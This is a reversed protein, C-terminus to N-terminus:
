LRDLVEQAARKGSRVAGDMYGNWYTSTETGAWHIRGVPERIAPGFGLLTGPGYIGVPCGRSWKQSAWNSEFYERPHLAQPGFFNSFQGLVAKRRESRSKTMFHRANDGGIFGFVTGREGSRPSDDICFNVAGPISAATGTLGQDRWFPREYVATVKMLTGQPVRQTLQDRAPPLVPDYNIRGALTPPIAVIVRRARVLFRRSHVTVGHDEQVIRRVPSGLVVRDGLKKAMKIAILQSGGHFHWMQAGDRTNFNREFTGPNQENGSAAIYFLTFLLSLDRPEAGFIPRTAVPALKRIQPNIDNARIWGELTQHDWDDAHPSAWPADVPVQTSMQDLRLVLQIIDPTLLPDPPATGLPGTDSYTSRQGAANIYVNEGENYTLFKEVGFEEALALIHDQTPGVFTGGRESIEGGGISKNLARGGVRNRAELVLVSRGAQRLKRAATLGAFGAGVVVADVRRKHRRPRVAGAGPVRALAAGAGAAASAGLLRRRSIRADSM